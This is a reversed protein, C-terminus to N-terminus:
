MKVWQFMKTKEDFKLGWNEEVKPKKMQHPIRVLVEGRKTSFVAKGDRYDTLKYEGNKHLKSIKVNKVIGKKSENEISINDIKSEIENLKLYLKEFSEEQTRSTKESPNQTRIPKIENSISARHSNCFDTKQWHPCQEGKRAGKRLTFKCQQKKSFQKLPDITIATRAKVEPRKRRLIDELKSPPKKTKPTTKFDEDDESSSIFEVSKFKKPESLKVECGKPKLTAIKNSKENDDSSLYLDVEFISNKQMKEEVKETGIISKFLEEPSPACTSILYTGNNDSKRKLVKEYQTSVPLPNTRVREWPSKNDTM